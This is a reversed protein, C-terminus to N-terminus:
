SIGGSVYKYKYEKINDDYEFEYDLMIAGDGGRYIMFKTLGDEQRIGIHCGDRIFLQESDFDGSRKLDEMSAWRFELDSSMDPMNGFYRKLNALLDQRIKQSNSDIELAIFKVGYCLGSDVRYADTIMKYYISALQKEREELGEQNPLELKEIAQQREFNAIIKPMFYVLLVTALVLSSLVVILATSIKKPKKKKPM